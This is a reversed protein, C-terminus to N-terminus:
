SQIRETTTQQYPVQLHMCVFPHVSHVVVRQVVARWHVYSYSVASVNLLDVNDVSIIRPHARRLSIVQRFVSPHAMQIERWPRRLPLEAPILLRLPARKSLAAESMSNELYTRIDIMARDGNRAYQHSLTIYHQLLTCTILEVWANHVQCRFWSM